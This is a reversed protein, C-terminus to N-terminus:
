VKKEIVGSFYLDVEEESILGADLAKEVGKKLVGEELNSDSCLNSGIKGLLRERKEPYQIAGVIANFVTNSNLTVDM